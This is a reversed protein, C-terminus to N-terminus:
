SYDSILISKELSDSRLLFLVLVWDGLFKCFFKLKQKWSSIVFEASWPDAVSVGNTFEVKQKLSLFTASPQCEESVLKYKFMWAIDKALNFFVDPHYCLTVIRWAAKLPALRLVFVEKKGWMWLVSTWDINKLCFLGGYFVIVQFHQLWPLECNLMGFGLDWIVFAGGWYLDVHAM